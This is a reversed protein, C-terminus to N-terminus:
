VESRQVDSLYYPFTDGESFLWEEDVWFVESIHVVERRLLEELDIRQAQQILRGFAYLGEREIAKVLTVNLLKM